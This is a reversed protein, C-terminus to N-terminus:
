RVRLYRIVDAPISWRVSVDTPLANIIKQLDYISPGFVTDFGDQASLMDLDTDTSAAWKGINAQVLPGDIPQDIPIGAILLKPIEKWATGNPKREADKFEMEEVNLFRRYGDPLPRVFAAWVPRKYKRIADVARAPGVAEFGNTVILQAVDTGKIPDRTLLVRDRLFSEIFPVLKRSGHPVEARGSLSLHNLYQEFSAGTLKSFQAGIYTLVVGEPRRELGERILDVIYNGVEELTEPASM